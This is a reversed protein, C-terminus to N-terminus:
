LALICWGGDTKLIIAKKDPVMYAEYTSCDLRLTKKRGGKMDYVFIESESVAYMLGDGMCVSHTGSALNVRVGISDKSNDMLWCVAIPDDASPRQVFAMQVNKGGRSYSALQWGYILRVGLGLSDKLKIQAGKYDYCMLHNSGVVAFGGDLLVVDSVLQDRVTVSTLMTQKSPNYINVRSIPSYSTAEMTLVWLYNNYFGYDIVTENGVSIMDTLEEPDGSSYVDIKGTNAGGYLVAVFGDGARASVPDKVARTFMETGDSGYLSLEGGGYLAFSSDGAYIESKGPVEFVTQGTRDIYSVDYGDYILFGDRFLKWKGETLEPISVLEETRVSLAPLVFAFFVTGLVALGALILAATIIRFRRREARNRM